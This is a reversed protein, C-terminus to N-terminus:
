RGDSGHCVSIIFLARRVRQLGDTWGGRVQGCRIARTESPQGFLSAEVQAKDCAQQKDTAAM